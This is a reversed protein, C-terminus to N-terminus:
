HHQTPKAPCGGSQSCRDKFRCEDDATAETRCQQQHTEILHGPDHDKDSFLVLWKIAVAHTQVSM